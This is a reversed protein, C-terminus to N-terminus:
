SKRSFRWKLTLITASLVLCVANAGMVPWSRILVGYITWLVFGTVTLLFMRLSISSADRERWIKVIQPTFSAMSCLAAGTGVIDALRDM